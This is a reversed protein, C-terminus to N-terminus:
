CHFKSTFYVINPPTGRFFVLFLANDCIVGGGVQRVSIETGWM